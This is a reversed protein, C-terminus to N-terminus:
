ATESKCRKLRAELNLDPMAHSRLAKATQEVTLSGGVVGVM